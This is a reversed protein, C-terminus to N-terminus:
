SYVKSHLWGSGSCYGHLSDAFDVDNVFSSDSNIFLLWESDQDERYVFGPHLRSSACWIEQDNRKSMGTIYASFSLSDYTWSNNILNFDLYSNPFAGEYEATLSIIRTTDLFIFDLIYDAGIGTSDM